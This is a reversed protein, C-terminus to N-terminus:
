TYDSAGRLSGYPSCCQGQAEPRQVLLAGTSSTQTGQGLTRQTTPPLTPHGTLDSVFPGNSLGFISVELLEHILICAKYVQGLNLPGWDEFFSMYPLDDDITFWYYTALEDQVTGQGHYRTKSRVKPHLNVKTSNLLTSSPPPHPFTTFFLRDSFGTQILVLVCHLPLSALRM